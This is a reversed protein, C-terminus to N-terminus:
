HCSVPSYWLNSKNLWKRPTFGIRSFLVIKPLGWQIISWSYQEKPSWKEDYLRSFSWFCSKQSFDDTLAMLRFYFDRKWNLQFNQFDENNQEKLLLKWECNNYDIRFKHSGECMLPAFYIFIKMFEWFGSFDIKIKTQNNLPVLGPLEM